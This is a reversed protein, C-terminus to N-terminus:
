RLDDPLLTCTASSALHERFHDLFDEFNLQEEPQEADPTHEAQDIDVFDARGGLVDLYNFSTSSKLM